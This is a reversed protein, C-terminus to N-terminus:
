AMTMAARPLGLDVLAARKSLAIDECDGYDADPITWYEEYGYLEQDSIGAHICSNVHSNVDRLMTLLGETMEIVAPGTMECHSPKRACFEAYPPYPETIETVFLDLNPKSPANTDNAIVKHAFCLVFVPFLLIRLM